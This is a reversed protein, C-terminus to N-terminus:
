LAEEDLLDFSTKLFNKVMRYYHMISELDDEQESLDMLFQCTLQKVERGVDELELVDKAYRQDNRTRSLLLLYRAKLDNGMNMSDIESLCEFIIEEVRKNEGLKLLTKCYEKKCILREYDYQSLKQLALEFLYQSAFYDKQRYEFCAANHEAKGIFKDHNTMCNLEISKKYQNRAEEFNGKDEAIKALSYCVDASRRPNKYYLPEIRSIIDSLFSYEKRISYSIILNALIDFYIKQREEDSEKIMKVCEYAKM